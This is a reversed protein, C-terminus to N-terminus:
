PSVNLDIALHSGTSEARLQNRRKRAAEESVGLKRAVQVASFHDFLRDDEESWTRSPRGASKAPAIRLRLRTHTIVTRDIGTRASLEYDSITGMLAVVEPAEAKRQKDYQRTVPCVPIGLMYRKKRVGKVGLAGSSRDALEQDTIQGLLSILEPTWKPPKANRRNARGDRRRKVVRLSIGLKRAVEANPLTDLLSDAAPTWKFRKRGIPLITTDVHGDTQGQEAAQEEPVHKSLLIGLAYRKRRVVGIEFLGNSREVIESDPVTGLLALLEPTWKSSPSPVPAIGLRKRHHGVTTHSLGLQAAIQHDSVKGLMAEADAPLSKWHGRVKKLVKTLKIGLEYRKARVANVDLVGQSQKIIESDPVRGLLSLLDLPWKIVRPAAAIGRRKREYRM